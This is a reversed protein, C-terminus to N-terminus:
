RSAAATSRARKRAHRCTRCRRTGPRGPPAYSNTEDLPHGDVCTARLYPSPSRPGHREAWRQRQCARCVRGQHRYWATTDEDYRHGADCYLPLIEPAPPPRGHRHRYYGAYVEWACTGCPLRGGLDSTALYHHGAECVAMREERPVARRPLHLALLIEPDPQQWAFEDHGAPGTRAAYADDLLRRRRRSDLALLDKLTDFSIGVEVALRARTWGAEDAALRLHTVRLASWRALNARRVTHGGHAANAASIEALLTADIDRVTRGPRITALWVLDLEDLVAQDADETGAPTRHYLARDTWRALTSDAVADELHDIAHGLPTSTVMLTGAATIVANLVVARRQSLWLRSDAATSLAPLAQADSVQRRVRATVDAEAPAHQQVM